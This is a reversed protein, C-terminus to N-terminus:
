KVAKKVAGASKREEEYSVEYDQGGAVRVGVQDFKVM